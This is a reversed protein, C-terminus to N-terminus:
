PSNLCFEVVIADWPIATKVDVTTEALYQEYGRKLLPSNCLTVRSAEIQYDRMESVLARVLAQAEWPTYPLFDGKEPDDYQTTLNLGLGRSGSIHTANPYVNENGMQEIVLIAKNRESVQRHIGDSRVDDTPPHILSTTNLDWNTFDLLISDSYVTTLLSFASVEEVKRGVPAPSRLEYQIAFVSPQANDPYEPSAGGERQRVGAHLFRMVNWFAATEPQTLEVRLDATFPATLLERLGPYNPFLLGTSNLKPTSNPFEINTDLEYIEFEGYRSEGYTLYDVYWYVTEATQLYLQNGLPYGYGSLRPANPNARTMDALAADVDSGRGFGFKGVVSMPLSWYTAWWYGNREQYLFDGNIFLFINPRNILDPHVWNFVPNPDGDWPVEHDWKEEVYLQSFALAALAEASMNTLAPNNLQRAPELFLDRRALNTFVIDGTPRYFNYDNWDQYNSVDFWRWDAITSSDPMFRLIETLQEVSLHSIHAEILALDDPYIDAERLAELLRAKDPDTEQVAHVFNITSLGSLLICCVHLLIKKLMAIDRSRVIPVRKVFIRV